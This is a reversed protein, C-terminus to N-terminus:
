KIKKALKPTTMQFLKILPNTLQEDYPEYRSTFYNSKGRITPYVHTNHDALHKKKLIFVCGIDFNNKRTVLYFSNTRM